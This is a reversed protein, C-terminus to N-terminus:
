MTCLKMVTTTPPTPLIKPVSPRASRQNAEQLLPDLPHVGRVSQSRLGVHDEEHDEEDLEPWAPMMASRPRAAPSQAMDENTWFYEFDLDAKGRETQTKM